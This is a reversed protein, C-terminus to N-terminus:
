RIIRYVSKFQNFLQHKELKDVGYLRLLALTWFRDDRLEDEAVWRDGFKIVWLDVLETINAEMAGSTLEEEKAANGVLDNDYPNAMRQIRGMQALHALQHASLSATVSSTVPQQQESEIEELLMQKAAGM